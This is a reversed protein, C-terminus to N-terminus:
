HTAADYTARAAEVQPMHVEAWEKLRCMVELLSQGLPTLEYDVRVPISPTVTRTVLGDREMRRLSQTLMKQSVGAILSSLESYRLPGHLGLGVILLSVWKDGITDLLRRSPCSVAFANFHPEPRQASTAM